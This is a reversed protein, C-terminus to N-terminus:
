KKNKKRKTRTRKDTLFEHRWWPIASDAWHPEEEIIKLLADVIKKNVRLTKLTYDISIKRILSEGTTDTIKRLMNSTAIAKKTIEQHRKLTEMATEKDLYGILNIPFVLESLIEPSYVLYDTLNKVICQTGKPTVSYVTKDSGSGKKVPTGTILKRKKLMNIIGYVTQTPIRAHTRKYNVLKCVAYPNIPKYAIIGLITLATRSIVDSM